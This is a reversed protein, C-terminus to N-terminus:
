GYQNIRGDDGSLPDTVEENAKYVSSLVQSPDTIFSVDKLFSLHEKYLLAYFM